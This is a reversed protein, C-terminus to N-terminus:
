PIGGSDKVLVNLQMDLGAIQIGIVGFQNSTPRCLARIASAGDIMERWLKVDDDDIKTKKCIIRSSEVYILEINSKEQKMIGIIDPKKGIREGDVGKNKRTKSAISQREASFNSLFVNGLIM